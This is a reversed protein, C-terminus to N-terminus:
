QDIKSLGLFVVEDQPLWELLCHLTPACREVIAKVVLQPLCFRFLQTDIGEKGLEDLPLASTAQVLKIEEKAQKLGVFRLIYKDGLKGGETWNIAIREFVCENAPM